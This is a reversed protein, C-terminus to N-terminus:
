LTVDSRLNGTRNDIWGRKNACEYCICTCDTGCEVPAFFTVPNVVGCKRCTTRTFQQTM